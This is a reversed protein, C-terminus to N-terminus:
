INTATLREKEQRAENIKRQIDKLKKNFIKSRKKSEDLYEVEYTIKDFEYDFELLDLSNELEKIVKNIRIIQNEILM